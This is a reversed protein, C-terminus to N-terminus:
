CIGKLANLKSNNAQISLNPEVLGLPMSSSRRFKEVSNNTSTVEKQMKQMFSRKMFSEAVKEFVPTAKVSSGGSVVSVPSDLFTSLVVNVSDATLDGGSEDLLEGTENANRGSLLSEDYFFLDQIKENETKSQCSSDMTRNSYEQDQEVALQQQAVGKHLASLGCVAMERNSSFLKPRSPAKSIPKNLQLNNFYEIIKNKRMGAMTFTTNSRRCKRNQRVDLKKYIPSDYQPQQQPQQRQTQLNLQHNNQFTKSKKFGTSAILGLSSKRKAKTHVSDDHASRDSKLGDEDEMQLNSNNAFRTSYTVMSNQGPSDV